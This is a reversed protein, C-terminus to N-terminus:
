LVTILTGKKYLRLRGSSADYGLAYGKLEVGNAYIIWTGLASANEVSTVALPITWTLPAGSAHVLYLAGNPKPTLRTVTGAGLLDVRLAGILEPGSVSLIADARVEVAATDPIVDTGGSVALTGGQVLVDGAFTNNGSLTQTGTGVKTLSLAGQLSGSFSPSTNDGGITLMAPAGSNTITGGTGGTDALSGVQQSGGGLDLTAGSALQVRTAVPLAGTLTGALNALFLQRVQDASLSGDYICASALKQCFTQQFFNAGVSGIDTTSDFGAVTGVAQGDVYYTMTNASSSGVVTLMHWENRERLAGIDYSSDQFGGGDWAGLRTGHILLQHQGFASRFLTAYDDAYIYYAWASATFNGSTIPYGAVAGFVATGVELYGSNKTVIMANAGGPGIGVELRGDVVAGNFAAGASGSNPVAPGSAPLNYGVAVGSPAAPPLRLKLTGGNVVTAGGYSNAGGLVQTGAGEKILTLDGQITGYFSTSTNDGGITLTAPGGSTTVRGATSGSDALSGIRQRTGGLDLTAGAAIQVRTTTPLVPAPPLNALDSNYLQLVQDASFSRNHICASAIKQCFTQQGFTAGISGIETKSDFGNVTGEAHGDVYYTMTDAGSSGVVTLMHWEAKERLGSIDFGSDKFTNDVWAGLQTGQILLQHHGYAGRFLTAYNDAYIHYAWASATFNGSALPYGPISNVAAPGVKLYGSDKSLALANAGGPGTGAELTGSIVTGNYAAATGTNTVVSGSAPLKYSIAALDDNFLQLVQDASLSRDYISANALKRCFTQETFCAGISGIDMKSDFGTVTGVAQGDVYYTMTNAGSNGVVTLMHWEWKERLASIDYGSDMFGAGMTAYAGLKTGHILLQHDGLGGRFLTVYDGPYIYYAWASATFNGSTIPYGAVARLVAPGVQLYGGAIITMANAGGPGAGAELTSSVVTGNYAAEASGSNTVTMGSAPLKYSVAATLRLDLRGANIVTPGSYGNAGTLTLTGTGTKTLALSAAGGDAIAGSIDTHGAGDITLVKAGAAGGAGGAIMGAFTLRGAAGANSLLYSAATATGLTIAANVREDSSVTGSRQIAGGDDLTLSQSGATGITYAAAGATDFLLSGLTIGVGLDLTINGNGAGNFTATDGSGPVTSASWNGANAWTSDATGNWSASGALASGAALVSTVTLAAILRLGANTSKM